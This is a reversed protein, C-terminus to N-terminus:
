IFPNDVLTNYIEEYRKCVNLFEKVESSSLEFWEPMVNKLRYHAHLAKELKFNHITEFEYLISLSNGNGIQLEKLRDKASKGTIGIKYLSSNEQQILYIKKRAM